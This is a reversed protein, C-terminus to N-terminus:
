VVLYLGRLVDLFVLERVLKLGGLEYDPSVLHDLCSPAEFETQYPRVGVFQHGHPVVFKSLAPLAVNQHRLDLLGSLDWKVPIVVLLDNVNGTTKAVAKDEGVFKDVEHARNLLLLIREFTFLSYGLRGRACRRGM